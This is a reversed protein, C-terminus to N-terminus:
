ETRCEYFVPGRGTAVNEVCHAPDTVAGAIVFDYPQGGLLLEYRGAPFSFAADEPRVLVMEQNEPLPSVRLEYGQDRILWSESPPPAVVAKGNSDFTMTKAIRAAIRVAVKDPAATIMDRRYILFAVKSNEIVTRAPKTIQLVTRARPDFPATQAQDLDILRNDSIAYVGYSAPKPVSPGPAVKAAESMARAMEARAAQLAETVGPPAPAPQPKQAPTEVLGAPPPPPRNPAWLAAYLMVGAFSAAVLQVAAMARSVLLRRLPAPEAAAVMEYAADVRTATAPDFLYSPRTAAPRAPLVVLDRPAMARPKGAAPPEGQWGSAVRGAAVDREIEGRASASPLPAAAGAAQSEFSEIAAELDELCNRIDASALPPRQASLQQKLALRAAEYVVQRMRAPDDEIEGIKRELLSYYDLM